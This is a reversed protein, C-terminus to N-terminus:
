REIGRIFRIAEEYGAIRKNRHDDSHHEIYNLVKDVVAGAFEEYVTGALGGMGFEQQVEEAMRRLVDKNM